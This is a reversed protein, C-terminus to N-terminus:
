SNKVPDEGLAAVRHRLHVLVASVRRNVEDEPGLALKGLVARVHSEVTRESLSLQEAIARNSLGRAMADLVQRERSTLGAYGAGDRRDRTLEDIVTDDVVVEGRAVARLAALLENAGSAHEKLLYGTGVGPRSARLVDALGRIEVHNSLMLIGAAPALERLGPILDIGETSWTPPLRVDLVVVDPAERRVLALATAVDGAQRVRPIGHHVLLAALAERVLVADDVVLVDRIPSM